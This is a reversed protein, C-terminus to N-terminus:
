RRWLRYVCEVVVRMVLQRVMKLKYLYNL